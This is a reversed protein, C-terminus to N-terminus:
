EIKNETYFELEDIKGYCDDPCLYRHYCYSQKTTIEVM